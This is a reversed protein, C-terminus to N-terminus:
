AVTGQNKNHKRKRYFVVIAVVCLFAIPLAIWALGHLSNSYHWKKTAVQVGDRFVSCVGSGLHGVPVSLKNILTRNGKLLGSTMYPADDVSWTLNFDKDCTTSACTLVCSLTVNEGKLDMESIIDVTHLWITKNQGKDECQYEGSNSASVNTIITTSVTKSISTSTQGKDTLILSSSNTCTLSVSESVASFVEEIGDIVTTQYSAVAKALGNLSVQCKWQRNHDTKKPQIKLISFCSGKNQIQFREGRLPTNGQALWFVELGTKNCPNILGIHNNIYCHLEIEGTHKNEAIQIYQLDVSSNDNGNDCTYISASSTEMYSIHLSCDELLTM